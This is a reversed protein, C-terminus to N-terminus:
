ETTEEVGDKFEGTFMMNSLEYARHAVQEAWKSELMEFSAQKYEEQAIHDITKKFGKFGKLGLNFIMDVVVAQRAENLGKFWDFDRTAEFRAEGVQFVLLYAAMERNMGADLNFGFGITRKGAPCTYMHESFGEHRAIMQICQTSM